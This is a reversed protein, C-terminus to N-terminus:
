RYLLSDRFTVLMNADTMSANHIGLPFSSVKGGLPFLNPIVNIWLDEQRSNKETKIFRHWEWLHMWFLAFAIDPVQSLQFQISLLLLVFFFLVFSTEIFCFDQKKMRFQLTCYQKVTCILLTTWNGEFSDWCSDNQRKQQLNESAYVSLTNWSSMCLLM